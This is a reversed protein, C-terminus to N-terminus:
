VTISIGVGKVGEVHLWPKGSLSAACSDAMLRVLRHTAVGKATQDRERSGNRRALDVRSIAPPLM